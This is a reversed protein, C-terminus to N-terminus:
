LRAKRVWGGNQLQGHARMQAQTLIDERVTSIDEKGRGRPHDEDNMANDQEVPDAKPVALSPV